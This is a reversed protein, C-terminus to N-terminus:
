FYTVYGFHIKSATRIDFNIDNRKGMAYSINLLGFKTEFELGLGGSIYRNSFDADIYKTQTFGFDTFGFIYSNVGILYHYEATFVAYQNAFISEEDFGRLLQYGGILFLENKFIQPSQYWGLHVATKLTANRGIPFYHAGAIVLRLRYSKLKISDYLSSFNFGRNTTDVLSTISTNEFVRKLGATATIEFENGKRPNNRYNTNIFNYDVGFNGSGVDMNPPLVKNLIISTTDIGGSLLFSRDGQYFIKGFQNISLTYQLGIITNLQLYSSDRKLLDFSFDFGFKSKFIYPHTYGLNLRPSQPILQQWNVLITEGHGLSNQLNLHVDGTVQAKGTASNSPLLGVLVNFESSKKPQLYLNLVSGTGLMSVDWSQQEKLYPLQLLKGDIEQLKKNDYISGNAIGLYQQLFLSKIKVKGYVRISDIHYLPGKKVNLSANVQEQKIQVDSLFVEAFPFGNDEYYGLITQEQAKLKKFDIIKNKFQNENWGIADLLKPDLSDTNLHFWKYKKGPYLVVRASTSDYFVSDVSATLYGKTQLTNQLKNLYNAAAEKNGFSSEIGLEQLHPLTDKGVQVFHLSYKKQAFSNTTLISCLISIVFLFRITYKPVKKNM